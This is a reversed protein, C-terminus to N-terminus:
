IPPTTITYKRLALQIVHNAYLELAIKGTKNTGKSSDYVFDSYELIAGPIDNTYFIDETTGVITQNWWPLYLGDADLNHASVYSARRESTWKRAVMKAIMDTDRINRANTHITLAADGGWDATETTHFDFAFSLDYSSLLTNFNGVWVQSEQQTLAKADRNLDVNNSNKRQKNTVGYPNLIPIVIIRCKWRLYALGPNEDFHYCISRMLNGLGCWGDPESGHIGASLYITQEPYDPCFVYQYINYTNTADQGIISRSIYNPFSTRLPEYVNTIFDESGYASITSMDTPASDETVAWPSFVIGGDGGDIVIENGQYDYIGM